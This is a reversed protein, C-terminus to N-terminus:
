NFFFLFNFMKKKTNMKMRKLDIKASHKDDKKYTNMTHPAAAPVPTPADTEDTKSAVANDEPKTTVVRVCHKEWIDPLYFIFSIKKKVEVRFFLFSIVFVFCSFYVFCDYLFHLIHIFAYHVVWTKGNKKNNNKWENVHAFPRKKKRALWFSKFLNEAKWSFPQGYQEWRMWRFYRSLKKTRKPKCHFYGGSYRKEKINEYKAARKILQIMIENKKTASLIRSKKKQTEEANREDHWTDKEVMTANPIKVMKM